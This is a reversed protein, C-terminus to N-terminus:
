VVNILRKSFPLKGSLQKKYRGRIDDPLCTEEAQAMLWSKRTGEDKPLRKVRTDVWVFHMHQPDIMVNALTLDDHYYGSAALAVISEALQAALWEHATAGPYLDYFEQGSICDPLWAMVHVSGLRNAPNVAVGYGFSPVTTHGERMLIRNSDFEKRSDHQRRLRKDIVDRGLWHAFQAPTHKDLVFKFLLTRDASLYFRTRPNHSLTLLLKPQLMADHLASDDAKMGSMAYWFTSEPLIIKRLM